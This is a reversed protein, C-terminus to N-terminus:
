PLPFFVDRQHDMSEYFSIGDHLGQFLHLTVLDKFDKGFGSPSDLSFVPGCQDETEM